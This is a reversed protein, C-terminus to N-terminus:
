AGTGADANPRAVALEIMETTMQEQRAQQYDREVEARRTRLNKQARAMTEVRARAEAEAGQMLAHAVAAFLSERLLGAMLEAIPMTTVPLTLNHRGNKLRPPPFLTRTEAQEGTGATGVVARVPGPYRVSLRILADTVRSALDPILSPHGPLDASWAVRVGADRMMTLTRHGIVIIGAEPDRAAMAAAAIHAPYAGSFGQAAGVVLLLGAGKPDVAPGAAAAIAGMAAEVTGAFATVAEVAGRAASAHSAAIARLAGVVQGIEDLGTLRDQIQEPRDTM